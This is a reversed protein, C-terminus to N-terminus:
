SQLEKKSFAAEYHKVWTELPTLEIDLLKQVEEMDAYMKPKVTGDWIRQYQQAAMEGAGPAMMEDIIKGFDAPPLAYYSIERGLASSFIAALENGDPADLGSVVLNQGALDPRELAAAVIKGIDSSPLWGNRFDPPTPYAVKDQDAVFPATWPGLLNEAYVTPQLIIYPIGSGELVEKIDLRVDVGPNGSREPIIPGSANWVIFKVGAERAAEIANLGMQLPNQSFFPILLSVADVQQSVELLRAKDLMDGEAISAGAEKFKQAKAADRTFVLPEAGRELLEHVVPGAQSGTAGYVLVRKNKMKNIKQNM